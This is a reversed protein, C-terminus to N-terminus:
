PDIWSPETTGPVRIWIWPVNGVVYMDGIHGLGPLQNEAGLFGRLTALVELGYPMTLVHSEDIHEPSLQVLDMRPQPLRVLRARPASVVPPPPQIVPQAPTPQVVPVPTPQPVSKPTRLVDFAEQAKAETERSRDASEQLAKARAVPSPQSWSIIAYVAVVAVLALLWGVAPHWWRRVFDVQPPKQPPGPPRTLIRPRKLAVLEALADDPLELTLVIWVDVAQISPRGHRYTRRHM